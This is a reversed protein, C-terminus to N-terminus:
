KRHKPDCGRTYQTNGIPTPASGGHGADSRGPTLGRSSIGQFALGLGLLLGLFAGLLDPTSLKHLGGDEHPRTVSRSAKSHVPM